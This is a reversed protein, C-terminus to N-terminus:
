DLPCAGGDRLVSCLCEEDGTDKYKCYNNCIDECVEELIKRISKEMMQGGLKNLGLRLWGGM